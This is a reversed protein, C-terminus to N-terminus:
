HTPSLYWNATGFMLEKWSLKTARKLYFTLGIVAVIFLSVVYVIGNSNPSLLLIIVEVILTSLTVVVIRIKIPKTWIGIARKFRDPSWSNQRKMTYYILYIIVPLTLAQIIIGKANQFGAINGTVVGIVLIVLPIFSLPFLIRFIKVGKTLRKRRRELEDDSIM